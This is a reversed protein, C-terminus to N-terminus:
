LTADKIANLVAQDEIVRGQDYEDDLMENLKDTHVIYRQRRYTLVGSRQLKKLEIGTTERTLGMFNALDQQTFPLQIEVLNNRLDRGFRLALFHMTHLVKASAKSQELANVRMQYNVHRGIFFNFVDFLIEQNRQLLELYEQPPIAYVECDTFAEYYYQSYKAKSFIWSVPFMEGRIDFSIPKEEGQSTLNYTKVVGKKIIYASKPVEGQVLIIEGKTFKRVPYHELFTYLKDHQM